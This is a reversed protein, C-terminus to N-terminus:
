GLSTDGIGVRYSLVKYMLRIFCFTIPPFYYASVVAVSEREHQAQIFGALSSQLKDRRLLVKKRRKKLGILYVTDRSMHEQTGPCDNVTVLFGCLLRRVESKKEKQM